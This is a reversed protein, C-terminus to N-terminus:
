ITTQIQYHWVGLKDGAVRVGKGRQYGYIQKRDTTRNRNQIYM